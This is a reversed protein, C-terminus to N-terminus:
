DKIECFSEISATQVYHNGFRKGFKQFDKWNNANFEGTEYVIGANELEVCSGNVGVLKGFYFYNMCFLLVQKGLLVGFGGDQEVIHEENVVVKEVVKEVTKPVNVVRKM